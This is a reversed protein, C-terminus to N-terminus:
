KIDFIKISDGKKLQIIAKKTNKRVGKIRNKGFKVKKGMSNIIKISLVKVNFKEAVAKGILIKESSTSVMFTYKGMQNALKLTKETIIPRILVAKM